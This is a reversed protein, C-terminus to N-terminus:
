DSQKEKKKEATSEEITPMEDIPKYIIKEVVKEVEVYKIVEM